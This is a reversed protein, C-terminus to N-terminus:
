QKAGTMHAENLLEGWEGEDAEDEPGGTWAAKIENSQKGIRSMEPFATERTLVPVQRASKM